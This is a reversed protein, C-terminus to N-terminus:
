TFAPLIFLALTILTIMGTLGLAFVNQIRKNAHAGMLDTNNALLLVLVLLVPLLIANVSQSLWM